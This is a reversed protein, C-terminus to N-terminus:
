RNAAGASRASLVFTSNVIPQVLHPIATVLWRYRGAHYRFGHPLVLQVKHTRGSFVQRNNLFFRVLYSRAGPRPTWAWVRAPVFGIGSLKGQKSRVSTPAHRAETDPRSSPRPKSAKGQGTVPTAPAPLTASANAEPPGIRAVRTTEDDVFTKQVLMGGGFAVAGLALAVLSSRLTPRRSPYSWEEGPGSQQAPLSPVSPRISSEILEFSPKTETEAPEAEATREAESTREVGARVAEARQAAARERGVLREAAAAREVEAVAVRRAEALAVRRAEALAVRRAEVVAVRGAETAAVRGAEAAAARRAEAVGRGVVPAAVRETEAEAAREAEAAPSEAEAPPEAGAAREAEAAARREVGPDYLVVDPLAERVRQAEDVAMVLVLEPSIPEREGGCM